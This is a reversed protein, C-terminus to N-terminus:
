EQRGRETMGACAPVRAGRGDNRRLCSGVCGEGDNRCGRWTMGAGEETMGACAPVRGFKRGCVGGSGGIGAVSVVSCLNRVMGREGCCRRRAGRGDNRRLCSGLRALAQWFKVSTSVLNVPTSLPQWFSAVTLGEAMGAGWGLVGRVFRFLGSCVRVGDGGVRWRRRWVGGDGGVRAMGAGGGTMGAGWEDNRRLCSGLRGGADSADCCGSPGGLRHEGGGIDPHTCPPNRGVCSHRFPACAGVRASTITRYRGGGM